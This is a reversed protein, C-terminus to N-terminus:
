PAFFVLSGTILWGIVQIFQTAFISIRIFNNRSFKSINWLQRFNGKKAQFYSEKKCIQKPDPNSDPNSDPDLVNIESGSGALLKPDKRIQNRNRIRIRLVAQSHKSAKEYCHQPFSVPVAPVAVTRRLSVSGFHMESGSRVYFLVCLDFFLFHSALKRPFLAAELM